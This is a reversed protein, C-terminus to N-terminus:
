DGNLRHMYKKNKRITLRYFSQEAAESLSCPHQLHIYSWEQSGPAQTHKHARQSCPHCFLLHCRHLTQHTCVEPPFLLSRCLLTICAPQERRGKFWRPIFPLLFIIFWWFNTSLDGCTQPNKRCFFLFFCVKRSTLFVVCSTDTQHCGM